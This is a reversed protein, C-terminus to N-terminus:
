QKKVKINIITKSTSKILVSPNTKMCFHLKNIKITIFMPLNIVQNKILSTM